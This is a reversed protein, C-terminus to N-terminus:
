RAGSSRFTALVTVGGVVHDGVSVLLTADTPLFVDM